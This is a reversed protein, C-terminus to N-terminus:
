IGPAKGANMALFLSKKGGGESGAGGVGQSFKQWVRRLILRGFSCSDLVTGGLCGGSQTSAACLRESRCVFLIPHCGQLWTTTPRYLYGPMAQSTRRTNCALWHVRPDEIVVETKKLVGFNTFKPVNDNTISKM